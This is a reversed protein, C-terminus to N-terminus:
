HALETARIEFRVRVEDKVQIAGGLVSLPTVGFDTQRLALRGTAVLSGSTMEVTVPARMTRRVGHVEITVDVRKDVKNVIVGGQDGEGEIGAVHILAYPFAAAELSALMNRRTGTIDDESPQTDFGAQKRLDPEDVVLAALRLYLDARNAGPAVFGRVDHSAIVHDHGLRALSGGRFVEIAVLSEKPDAGLVALGQAAAQRYYADPFAAPIAEATSPAPPQVTCGALWGFAVAAVLKRMLTM